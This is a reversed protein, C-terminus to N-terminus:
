ALLVVVSGCNASIDLGEDSGKIHNCHLSVGRRVLSISLALNKSNVALNCVFTQQVTALM